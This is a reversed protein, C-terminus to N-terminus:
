ERKVVIICQFNPEKNFGDKENNLLINYVVAQNTQINSRKVDIM